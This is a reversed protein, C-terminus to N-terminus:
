GPEADTPNEKEIRAWDGGGLHACDEWLASELIIDPDDSQISFYGKKESLVEYEKGPTLYTVAEPISYPARAYVTKTM